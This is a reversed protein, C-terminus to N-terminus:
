SSRRNIASAANSAVKGLVYGAFGLFGINVVLLAIALPTSRMADFASTAVNGAEEIPGAM